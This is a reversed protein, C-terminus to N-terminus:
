KGFLAQTHLTRESGKLRSEMVFEPDPQGYDQELVCEMMQGGAKPGRTRHDLTNFDIM